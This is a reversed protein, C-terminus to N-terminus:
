PEVMVFVLTARVVGQSSKMVRIPTASALLATCSRTTDDELTATTGVLDIMDARDAADSYAWQAVLTLDDFTIAGIDVYRRSSELVGDISKEVSTTFWEDFIPSDAAVDFSIGNFQWQSM